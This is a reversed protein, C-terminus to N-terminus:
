PAEDQRDRGHQPHPTPATLLVVPRSLVLNPVNRLVSVLLGTFCCRGKPFYCKRSSLCTPSHVFPLGLQGDQRCHDPPSKKLPNMRGAVQLIWTHARRADLCGLGLVQPLISPLFRTPSPLPAHPALCLTPPAPTQPPPAMNGWLTPTEKFCSPFAKKKEVM